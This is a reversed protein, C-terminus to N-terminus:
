TEGQPGAEREPWLELQVATGTKKRRPRRAAARRPGPEPTGARRDEFLDPPSGPQPAAEAQPRPDIAPAQAPDESTPARVRAPVASAEAAAEDADLDALDERIDRAPLDDPWIDHGFENAATAPAEPPRPRRSGAKGRSPM